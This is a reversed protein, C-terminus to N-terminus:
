AHYTTMCFPRDLVLYFCTGSSQHKLSFCVFFIGCSQMAKDVGPLVAHWQAARHESILALDGPLVLSTVPKLDKVLM